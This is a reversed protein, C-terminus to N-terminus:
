LNLYHQRNEDKAGTKSPCLYRNGVLDKMEPCLAQGLPGLERSFCWMPSIEGYTELGLGVFLFGGEKQILVVDLLAPTDRQVPFAQAIEFAELGLDQMGQFDRGTRQLITLVFKGDFRRGCDVVDQYPSGKDFQIGHVFNKGM